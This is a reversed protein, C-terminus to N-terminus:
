DVVVFKEVDKITIRNKRIERHIVILGAPPLSADLEEYGLEEAIAQALSPLAPRHGCIVISDDLTALKKVLRLGPQSNVSWGLESLIQHAELSLERSAAYPSVTSICRISDSSVIKNVGFASLLDAILHSQMIGNPTLPRFSDPPVNKSYRDAWEVRKEATAHRLLILPKTEISKVAERALDKDVDYTLLKLASKLSVWVLQDAEDNPLFESDQVLSARWYFVTKPLGDFIYEQTSLPQHLVVQLGTEELTERVATAPATDSDDIKGKPFSWDQRHPRHIVAIKQNLGRGKVIVTGAAYIHAKNKSSAM